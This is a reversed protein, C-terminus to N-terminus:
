SSIIGFATGDRPAVNFIYHAAVLSGAGPRNQGVINTGGAHKPMHRALLRAYADYGGGAEFGVIINITKGSYFQDPTDAFAANAAFGVLFGQLALLRLHKILHIDGLM